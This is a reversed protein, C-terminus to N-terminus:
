KRLRKSKPSSNESPPTAKDSNPTWLGSTVMRKVAPLNINPRKARDQIEKLRGMCSKVRDLETKVESEKPDQGQTRMWMWVLSNLAFASVLDLKAQALPELHSTLEDRGVALWPDLHANLQSLAGHFDSIPGTLESPFDSSSDSHDSPTSM